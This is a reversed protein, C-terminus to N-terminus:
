NVGMSSGTVQRSRFFFFFLKLMGRASNKHESAREVDTESTRVPM